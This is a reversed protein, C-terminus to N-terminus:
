NVLTSVPYAEMEDAPYPALLARLRKPDEVAPDLWLDYASGPLILPMRDHIPAVVANSETTLHTCSEVPEGAREWREWIGPFEFFEALDFAEAIERATKRLTYRGCMPEEGRSGEGASGRTPGRRLM